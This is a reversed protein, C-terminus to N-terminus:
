EDGRPAKLGSLRSAGGVGRGANLRHVGRSVVEIPTPDLNYSARPRGPEDPETFKPQACRHNLRETWWDIFM